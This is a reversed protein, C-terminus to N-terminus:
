GSSRPSNQMNDYACEFDNKGVTLAMERSWRSCKASIVRLKKHAAEVLLHLNPNGTKTAISLKEKIKHQCKMIMQKAIEKKLQRKVFVRLELGRFDDISASMPLPYTELNLLKSTSPSSSQQGSEEKTLPPPSTSEATLMKRIKRALVKAECRMKIIDDATYWISGMEEKTLPAGKLSCTHDPKKSFCVSHKHNQQRKIHMKPIASITTKM